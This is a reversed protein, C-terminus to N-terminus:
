NFFARYNMINVCIKLSLVNSFITFAASPISEWAQRQMIISQSLFILKDALFRQSMKHVKVSKSAPHQPSVLIAFPANKKCKSGDDFHLHLVGIHWCTFSKPLMTIQIRPLLGPLAMLVSLISLQWLNIKYKCREQM